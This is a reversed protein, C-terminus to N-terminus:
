GRAEDGAIAATDEPGTRPPGGKKSALVVRTHALRFVRRLLPTFRLPVALYRSGPSHRIFADEEERM